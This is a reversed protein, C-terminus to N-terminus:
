TPPNDPRPNQRNLSHIVGLSYGANYNAQAIERELALLRSEIDQFRDNDARHKKQIIDAVKRAEYSLFQETM